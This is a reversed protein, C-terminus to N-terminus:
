FSNTSLILTICAKKYLSTSLPRIFRKRTGQLQTRSRKTINQLIGKNFITKTICIMLSHCFPHIHHQSIICGSRKEFLLFNPIVLSLGLLITWGQFLGTWIYCGSGLSWRHSSMSVTSQGWLGVCTKEACKPRVQAHRLFSGLLDGM